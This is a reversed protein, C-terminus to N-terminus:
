LDKPCVAQCLGCYHCSYPIIGLESELAVFLLLPM